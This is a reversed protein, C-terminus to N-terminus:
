AQARLVRAEAKLLKKTAESANLQDINEIVENADRICRYNPAWVDAQFTLVGPDWTFNMLHILQGNEAGASNLAMDTCVESNNIVFRSNQQTQQHAYASFLLSKIGKESTLVNGPAFESNPTVDLLKECSSFSVTIALLGIYKYIKKM